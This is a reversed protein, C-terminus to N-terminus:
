HAPNNIKQISRETRVLESSKILQGTPSIPLLSTQPCPNCKTDNSDVMNTRLACTDNMYGASNSPASTSTGASESPEGSFALRQASLTTIVPHAALEVQDDRPGDEKEDPHEMEEPKHILPRDYNPRPHDRM